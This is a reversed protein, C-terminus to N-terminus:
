IHILSLLLALAAVVFLAWPIVRPLDAEWFGLQRFWGQVYFRYETLWTDVTAWLFGPLDGLLRDWQLGPQYNIKQIMTTTVAQYNESSNTVATALGVLLGGAAVLAARTRVRSPQLVASVLFLALVLFYPPKALALLLSAGILAPM